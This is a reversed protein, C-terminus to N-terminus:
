IEAINTFDMHAHLVNLFTVILIFVLCFIVVDLETNALLAQSLDLRLTLKVSAVVTVIADMTAAHPPDPPPLVTVGNGPLPLPVPVAFGM